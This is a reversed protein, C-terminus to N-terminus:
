YIECIVLTIARVDALLHTGQVEQTPTEISAEATPAKPSVATPDAM